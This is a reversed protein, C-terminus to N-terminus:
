AGAFAIRDVMVDEVEEFSYPNTALQRELAPMDEVRVVEPVALDAFLRENTTRHLWEHFRPAQNTRRDRTAERDAREESARRSITRRFSTFADAAQQVRIAGDLLALVALGKQLHFVPILAPDLDRLRSPAQLLEALAKESLCRKTKHANNRDLRAKLILLPKSAGHKSLEIMLTAAVTDNGTRSWELAVREAASQADHPSLSEARAILKKAKQRLPIAAHPLSRAAWSRYFSAEALLAAIELTDVEPPRQVTVSQPLMSSALRKFLSPASTQKPKGKITKTESSLASVDSGPRDGAIPIQPDSKPRHSSRSEIPRSINEETDSPSLDTEGTGLETEGPRLEIEGASLETEASVANDEVESTTAAGFLEDPLDHWEDIIESVNVDAGQLKKRLKLAIEDGPRITLAQRILSFAEDRKANGKKLLLFALGVFTSSDVVDASIANRFAQEAEDFRGARRLTDALGNRAYFNDPFEAIISRYERVAAEYRKTSKLIEALGTRAVIHNYRDVEPPLLEINKRYVEEAESYRGDAKLVEALGNRAVINEPFRKWAIWAFRLARQVNKQQLLVEKTINWNYPDHPALTRAEEAWRIAIAPRHRNM